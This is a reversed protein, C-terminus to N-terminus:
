DTPLDGAQVVGRFQPAVAVTISSLLIAFRHFFSM